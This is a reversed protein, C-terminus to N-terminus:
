IKHFRKKHNPNAENWELQEIIDNKNMNYLDQFRKQCIMENFKQSTYIGTDLEYSIPQLNFPLNLWENPSIHHHKM